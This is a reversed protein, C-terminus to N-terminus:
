KTDKVPLGFKEAMEKHKPNDRLIAEESLPIGAQTLLRDKENSTLLGRDFQGCRKLLIVFKELDVGIDDALEIAQNKFEEGDLYMDTLFDQQHDNLKTFFDDVISSAQDEMENLTADLEEKIIKKLTEKTLKM